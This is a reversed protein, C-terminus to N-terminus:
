FEPEFIIEIKYKDAIKKFAALKNSAENTKPVELKLAGSLKTYRINEDVAVIKAGPKYKNVLEKCYGEFTAEQIKDFDTAKRSVIYKGPTYSDLRYRVPKGEYIHGSPYVKSPDEITVEHFGYKPPDLFKVKENYKNGREFFAKVEQWTYKKGLKAADKELDLLEPVAEQIAEEGYQEILDKGIKELEVTRGAKKTADVFEYYKGDPLADVKKSV